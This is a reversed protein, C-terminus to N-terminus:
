SNWREPPMMLVPVTLPPEVGANAFPRPASALAVRGFGVGFREAAFPAAWGNAAANSDLRRVKAIM